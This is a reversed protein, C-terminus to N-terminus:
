SCVPSRCTRKELHAFIKTIIEEANEPVSASKRRNSDADLWRLNPLASIVKPDYIGRRFFEAVPVLHDIHAGDPRPGLHAQFETVNYGLHDETKSHKKQGNAKLARHLFRKMAQRCRERALKEEPSLLPKMGSNPHKRRGILSRSVNRKREESFPRGNFKESLSKGRKKLERIYEPSFNRGNICNRKIGSQSSSM